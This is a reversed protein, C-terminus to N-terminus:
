SKTMSTSGGKLIARIGDFGNADTAGEEDNVTKSAVSYNGQLILSQVKKAIAIMAGVIELNEDGAVNYNMGSQQVAYQFKLGIARPAVVTAIHSSQLQSISSNSFQGSMDGLDSITSATGPSTRQNYTHLIGNAPIKRIEDIVPFERLFAEYLIPDLDTRILPAGSSVDLARQILRSDDGFAGSRAALSLGQAAYSGNELDLVSKREDSNMDLLAWIITELDTDSVKYRGQQWDEADPGHKARLYGRPNELIDDEGLFYFQKSKRALALFQKSLQNDGIKGQKAEFPDNAYSKSVTETTANDTPMSAATKAAEGAELRNILTKAEKLFIEPTM